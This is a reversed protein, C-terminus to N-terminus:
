KRSIPVVVKQRKLIAKLAAFPKYFRGGTYEVIYTLVTRARNKTSVVRIMVKKTHIMVIQRYKLVSSCNSVFLQEITIM